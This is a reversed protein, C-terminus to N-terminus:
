LVEMSSSADNSGEDSKSSVSSPVMLDNHEREETKDLVKATSRKNRCYKWTGLLLLCFLPVSIAIWMNNYPDEDESKSGSENKENDGEYVPGGFSTVPDCKDLFDGSNTISPRWQNDTAENEPDSFGLEELIGDMTYRLTFATDVKSQTEARLLGECAMGKVTSLVEESLDGSTTSSSALIGNLTSRYIAICLEGYNINFLSSGSRITSELLNRIDSISSFSINPSPFTVANEVATISRIRTEFTGEQFLVYFDIKDVTSMDFKCSNCQFGMYSGKGFSDMPLYVSSVVGSESALPVAFASAFGIFTKDRLQLHLGLPANDIDNMSGVFVNDSTAELEVVIGAFNRFDLRTELSKSVSSFGGGDLDINGSFVMTRDSDLFELSGLSKGGMVGDVVVKWKNTEWGFEAGGDLRLDAGNVM